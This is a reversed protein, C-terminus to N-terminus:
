REIWSPDVRSMSSYAAQAARSVPPSPVPAGVLEPLPPASPTEPTGAVTARGLKPVVAAGDEDSLPAPRGLKVGNGPEPPPGTQRTM